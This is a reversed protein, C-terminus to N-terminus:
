LDACIRCEGSCHEVCGGCIGAGRRLTRLLTLYVGLGMCAAQQRQRHRQRRRVDERGELTRGLRVRQQVPVRVRRVGDAARRCDSRQVQIRVRPAVRPLATRWSLSLHTEHMCGSICFHKGSLDAAGQQRRWAFREQQAHQFPM